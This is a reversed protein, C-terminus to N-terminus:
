SCIYLSGSILGRIYAVPYLDGPYKGRYLYGSILERSILCQIYAWPTIGGSILVGSILGRM